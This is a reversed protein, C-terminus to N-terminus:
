PALAIAFLRLVVRAGRVPQVAVIRAAGSTASRVVAESAVCDCATTRTMQELRRAVNVTNGM